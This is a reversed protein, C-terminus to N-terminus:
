WACGDDGGERTECAEESYLTMPNLFGAGRTGERCRADVCSRKVFRIMMWRTVDITVRAVSPPGRGSVCVCVCVCVCVLTHSEDVSSLDRVGGTLVRPLSSARTVVRGNSGGVWRDVSSSTTRATCARAPIRLTTAPDTDDRFKRPVRSSPHPTPPPPTTRARRPHPTPPPTPRARPTHSEVRPTHTHHNQIIIKFSSSSSAFRSDRRPTPTRPHTPTRSATRALRHIPIEVSSVRREVSSDRREFRSDRIEFRPVPRDHIRNAESRNTRNTRENTERHRERSRHPRHRAFSPVSPGGARVVFRHISPHIDRVDRARVDRVFSTKM